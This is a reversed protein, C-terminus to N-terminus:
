IDERKELIYTGYGDCHICTEYVHIPEYEGKQNKIYNHSNSLLEGTGYCFQCVKENEM